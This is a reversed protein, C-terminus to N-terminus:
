LTIYRLQNQLLDSLLSLIKCYGKVRLAQGWNLNVAARLKGALVSCEAFM